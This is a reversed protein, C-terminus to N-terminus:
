EMASKAAKSVLENDDRSLKEMVEDRRFDRNQRMIEAAYMRGWWQEQSALESLHQQAEPLAKQFQEKSRHKKHWIANNVMHEALLIDSNPRDARNFVLLARGPSREFIYKVFGSPIDKNNRVYDVYDAYNVPKLPSEDPGGNDHGQFWDLVFSRVKTDNINLYPALAEINVSPPLDLLQLIALAILPQHEDPGAAFIAVQKVIEHKDARINAALQRPEASNQNLADAVKEIGSQIVPDSQALLQEVSVDQAMCPAFFSLFVVCVLIKCM